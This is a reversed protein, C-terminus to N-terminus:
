DEIRKSLVNRLTENAENPLSTHYVEGKFPKLAAMTANPNAERVLLFIASTGPQLGDRVQKIFKKEIGLDL